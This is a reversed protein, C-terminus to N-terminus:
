NTWCVRYFGQTALANTLPVDIAMVPATPQILQQSWPVDNTSWSVAQWASSSLLDAKYFIRYAANSNTNFALTLRNTAVPIQLSAVRLATGTPDAGALYDQWATWGTHNPDSQDANPATLGHLLLWAVPTRSAALDHRFVLAPDGILSVSQLRERPMEGSMQQLGGKLVDGLRLTGHAAAQAYLAVGLDASEQMLLDGTAGVGAVFGSGPAFLGYPVICVTTTLSQWRNVRCGVVVAITPKWASGTFDNYTATNRLVRGYTAGYGGLTQENSHGLYHFLGSGSVLAPFLSQAQVLAMNGPYDPEPYLSYYSKVVTRGAAQLYPILADTGTSFPYYQADINDWDAVVVAQQKWSQAGEYAITKQVVVAMDQTSTTPLRGIVVEPAADNTVVDGLAQDTALTMGYSGGGALQQGAILTPILCATYDGVTLAAHQFDLCGAGALLVYQLPHGSWNTYGACCFAHIAQPDALGFSFQNYISEVDVIQTLLGQQNRFDALPQLVPRIDSRWGEPPVLIVYDAAHSASTWDVDQVGRISPQRVGTSKSVVQYLSDTGGCPFSAIWGNSQANGSVSLPAVLCALHTDTVDLALLDNTSFGAAQVTNNSGGTCRLRNNEATYSCPYDYAVSLCVPNIGQSAGLNDIRLVANSGILNTSAFAYRFSAAQEGTWAPDGIEAGGLSVRMSYTGASSGGLCFSLLNVTVTGSWVGAACDVLPNTVVLASGGPNLQPSYAAYSIPLDALSSYSVRSLWNTGQFSLQNQYNLNTTVPPGASLLRPQMSVGPGLGVWYVNEPAFRSQAPVGHFYLNTGEAYWSVPQGQCSLTLNTTSWASVIDASNWGSAAALEGANVCYVGEDRLSLRIRDASGALAWARVRPGSGIWSQRVPLGEQSLPHVGGLPLAIQGPVSSTFSAPVGRWRAVAVEAQFPSVMMLQYQCSGGAAVPHDDAVAYAHGCEDMGAPVGNSSGVVQLSVGDEALRLVRFATVGLESTTRWQVEVCGDGRYVARFGAVEACPVYASSAAAAACRAALLLMCMWYVLSRMVKRGFFFPRVDM